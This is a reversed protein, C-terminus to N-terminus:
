VYVNCVIWISWVAYHASITCSTTRIARASTSAPTFVETACGPSHRLWRGDLVADRPGGCAAVCALRQCTSRHSGITHRVHPRRRHFIPGAHCARLTSMVAARDTGHYMCAGRHIQPPVCPPSLRAIPGTTSCAGHRCALHVHCGHALPVLNWQSTRTPCAVHMPLNDAPIQDRPTAAPNTTRDTGVTSVHSVCTTLFRGQPVIPGWPPSWHLSAIVLCALRQSRRCSM